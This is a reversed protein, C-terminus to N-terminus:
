VQCCTVCRQDEWARLSARGHLGGHALVRAQQEQL